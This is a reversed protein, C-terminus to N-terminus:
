RVTFLHGIGALSAPQMTYYKDIRRSEQIKAIQIKFLLNVVTDIIIM